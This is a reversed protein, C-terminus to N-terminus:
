DEWEKDRLRKLLELAIDKKEYSLSEWIELLEEQLKEKENKRKLM